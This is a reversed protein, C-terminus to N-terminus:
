LWVVSLFATLLSLLMRNQNAASLMESREAQEPLAQAIIYCYFSTKSKLRSDKKRLRGVMFSRDLRM